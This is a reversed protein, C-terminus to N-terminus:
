EQTRLFDLMLENVKTPHTVTIDHKAGEIPKFTLNDSRILRKVEESHM